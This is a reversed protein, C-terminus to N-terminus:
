VSVAVQVHLLASGRACRSLWLACEHESDYVWGVVSGACRLAKRWDDLIVSEPVGPRLSERRAERLAAALASEDIAGPQIGFFVVKLHREPRLQRAADQRALRLEELCWPSRSFGPSLVVLTIAAGLLAERRSLWRWSGDHPHSRVSDDHWPLCRPGLRFATRSRM